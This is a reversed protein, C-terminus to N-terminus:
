LGTFGIAHCNRSKAVADQLFTRSGDRISMSRSTVSQKMPKKAAKMLITRVSWVGAGLVVYAAFLPLAGVVSRAVTPGCVAM